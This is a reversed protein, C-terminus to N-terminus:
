MACLPPMASGITGSKIRHLSHESQGSRNGSSSTATRGGPRGSRGMLDRGAQGRRGKGAQPWTREGGGGDARRFPLPSSPAFPSYREPSTPSSPPSPSAPCAFRRTSFTRIIQPTPMLVSLLLRLHRSSVSRQRPIEGASRELRQGGRGGEGGRGRVQRRCDSRREPRDIPDGGHVEEEVREQGRGGQEIKQDDLGGVAEDDM